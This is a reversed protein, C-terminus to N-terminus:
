AAGRQNLLAALAEEVQDQPTCNHGNVKIPRPLQGRKRMRWLTMNSVGGLLEALERDRILKVM